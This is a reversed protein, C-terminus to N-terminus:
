FMGLLVDEQTLNDSSHVGICVYRKGARNAFQMDDQLKALEDDYILKVGLLNDEEHKVPLLIKDINGPSSRTRRFNTKMLALLRKTFSGSEADSDYVVMNRDEAIEFIQKTTM